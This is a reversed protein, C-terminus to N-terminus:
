EMVNCLYFLQVNEYKTLKKIRFHEIFTRHMYPKGVFDCCYLMLDFSLNSHFIVNSFMWAKVWKRLSLDYIGLLCIECIDSSSFYLAM